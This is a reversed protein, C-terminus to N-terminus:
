SMSFLWCFDRGEDLWCELYTIVFELILLSYIYDALWLCTGSLFCNLLILLVSLALFCNHNKLNDRYELLLSVNFPPAWWAADLFTPAMSTSALAVAWGSAPVHRAESFCLLSALTTPFPSPFLLWLLPSNLSLVPHHPCIVSLRVHLLATAPPPYPHSAAYNSWLLRLSQSHKWWSWELKKTLLSPSCLHFCPALSSAVVTILACSSQLKSSPLLLAPPSFHHTRSRLQVYFWFYINWLNPLLHSLSLDLSGDIHKAQAM